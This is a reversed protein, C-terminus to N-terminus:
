INCAEKTPLGLVKIGPSRISFVHAYQLTDKISASVQRMWENFMSDGASTRPSRTADIPRRSLASIKRRSTLALDLLQNPNYVLCMSWYREDFSVADHLVSTLQIPLLNTSSWLASGLCVAWGGWDHESIIHYLVIGM